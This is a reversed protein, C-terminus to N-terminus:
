KELGIGKSIYVFSIMSLIVQIIQLFKIGGSSVVSQYVLILSIIITTSWLIKVPTVGKIERDFVEKVPKKQISSRIHDIWSLLNQSYKDLLVSLATFIGLLFVTYATNILLISTRFNMLGQSSIFAPTEKLQLAPRLSEPYFYCSDNELIVEGNFVDFGKPIEDRSWSYFPLFKNVSEMYKFLNIQQIIIPATEADQFYVAQVTSRASNINTTSSPRIEIIQLRNIQEPTQSSYFYYLNDEIRQSVISEDNVLIEYSKVTPDALTELIIMSRHVGDQAADEQLTEHIASIDPQDATWLWVTRTDNEGIFHDKLILDSSLLTPQPVFVFKITATQKLDLDPDASLESIEDEELTDEQDAYFLSATYGQSDIFDMSFSNAQFDIRNFLFLGAALLLIFPLLLFRSHKKLFWTIVASLVFGLGLFLLFTNNLGSFGILMVGVVIVGGLIVKLM